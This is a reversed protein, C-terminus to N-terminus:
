FATALRATAPPIMMYGISSPWFPQQFRWRKGEGTGYGVLDHVEVRDLHRCHENIEVDVSAIRVPIVGRPHLPGFRKSAVMRGYVGLFHVLKPRIHGIFM